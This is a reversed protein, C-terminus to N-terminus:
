WRTRGKQKTDKEKVDGSRGRKPPFGAYRKTSSAKPALKRRLFPINNNFFTGSRGQACLIGLRCSKRFSPPDELKIGTM